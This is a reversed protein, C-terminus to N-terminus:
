SEKRNIKDWIFNIYQKVPLSSKMMHGETHGDTIRRLSRTWSGERRGGGQKWGSSCDM